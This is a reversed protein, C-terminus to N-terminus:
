TVTRILSALEAPVKIRVERVDQEGDFSKQLASFIHLVEGEEAASGEM